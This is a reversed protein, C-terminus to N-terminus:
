IRSRTTLAAKQQSHPLAPSLRPISRPFGLFSWINRGSRIGIRILPEDLLHRQYSPYLTTTPRAALFQLPPSILSYEDGFGGVVNVTLRCNRMERRRDTDVEQAVEM